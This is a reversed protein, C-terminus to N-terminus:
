VLVDAEVRGGLAEGVQFFYVLFFRRSRAAVFLVLVLGNSVVGLLRQQARDARSVIAENLYM